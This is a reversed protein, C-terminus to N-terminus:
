VSGELGASEECRPFPWIIRSGIRPSAPLWETRSSSVEAVDMSAIAMMASAGSTVVSRTRTQVDVQDVARVFQETMEVRHRGVLVTLAALDTGDAADDRRHEAEHAAASRVDGNRGVMDDITGCRSTARNCSRAFADIGRQERLERQEFFREGPLADDDPRHDLEFGVVTKAEPAAAAAASSRTSRTMMQVGSLSRACHTRPVRTTCSLRRVRTVDRRPRCRRSTRRAAPTSGRSNLARRRRPRRSERGAPSPRSTSPALGQRAVAVELRDGGLGAVPVDAHRAGARSAVVSVRANRGRAGTGRGEGGQAGVDREERIDVLQANTLPTALLM